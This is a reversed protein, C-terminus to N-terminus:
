RSKKIYRTMLKAIDQLMKKAIGVFSLAHHPNLRYPVDLIEVEEMHSLAWRIQFATNNHLLHEWPKRPVFEPIVIIITDNKWRREIDEVYTLLPSILEREPSPVIDLPVGNGYQKWLIQAEELEKQDIGIHVARLHAPKVNKAAELAKVTGQHVGGVLLIVTRDPLIAPHTNKVLSLQHTVSMYHTHILRMFIILMFLAPVVVWAGHFFKSFFVILLVLGTTAAGITNIIKKWAFSENQHLKEQEKWHRVMSWQALTFGIFVGVAYLPILAHTNADFFIITLGSLIALFLIGNKYVLRSGLTFFQRPFYRDKALLSGLQPFAAFPTNAALLLILATAFQIMYYMIGGGFVSKAIQSVVTEGPIPTVNLFIALLTIGIFIIALLTAMWLLIKNANKAEPARFSQVGNATAELGTMATCGAAFAKIILLAGLIGIPEVAHFSIPHPVLNGTLYRFVGELLLIGISALFFYTPIAFAKGSERVGRLNMISLFLIVIISLLVRHSFLGPFASTIAAVGASISVAATLIYDFILSAAVLLASFEGLHKKAVHYGGGGEPHSHILQRYSIATIFILAAIAIAIPLAIGIFATGAVVLVLLIEETAYATSSLSDSAFIALGQPNSLREHKLSQTPLAKGILFNKVKKWM